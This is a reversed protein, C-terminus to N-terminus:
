KLPEQGDSILAHNVARQYAAYEREMKRLESGNGIRYGIYLAVAVLAAVGLSITITM